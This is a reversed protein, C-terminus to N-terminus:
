EEHGVVAGKIPLLMEISHLSVIEHRNKGLDLIVLEAPLPQLVITSCEFKRALFHQYKSHHFENVQLM